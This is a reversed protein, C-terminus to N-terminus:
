SHSALIHWATGDCLIVITDYQSGLAKTTAGDITESANGDITIASGGATKKFIMVAGTSVAAAPLVVSYGAGSCLFVTNSEDGTLAVAGSIARSRLGLRGFTWQQMLDAQAPGVRLAASQAVIAREINSRYAGEIKDPGIAGDQIDTNQVPHSVAVGALAETRAIRGEVTGDLSSNSITVTTSVSAQIGTLAESSLHRGEVVGDPVLSWDIPPLAKRSKGGRFSV